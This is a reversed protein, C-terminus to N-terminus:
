YFIITYKIYLHDWIFVVMVKIIVCYCLIYRLTYYIIYVNYM